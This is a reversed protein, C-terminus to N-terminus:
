NVDHTDKLWGKLWKVTNQEMGVAQILIKESAKGLKQPYEGVVKQVKKDQFDTSNLVNKMANRYANVIDDPTGPPLQFMKSGMVRIGFLARWVELQVGSLKKGHISEYVEFFTPINPMKPDRVIKGNDDEFGFTFLPVALGKEILPKVKKDWSAANDYNLQIEGREFATRAGGNSLGFVTNLKIGLLDLSFLAPLDSSTANAGGYTATMSKLKAIDAKADGTLGIDKRGYVVLGFPSTLFPIFKTLPYKVSADQLLYQFMTGTGTSAFMMGDPKANEHFYNIGKVSGGGKINRIIIKPNGPLFKELMPAYVRAHITSGGGEKYPVIMTIQKGSFDVANAAVSTMTLGLLIGAKLINKAVKSVYKKHSIVNMEEEWITLM